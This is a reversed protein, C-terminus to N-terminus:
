KLEVYMIIIDIHLYVKPRKDNIHFFPINFYQYKM